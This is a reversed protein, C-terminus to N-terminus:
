RIACRSLATPNIVNLEASGSASVVPYRCSTGDPPVAGASRRGKWSRVRASSLVMMTASAASSKDESAGPVYVALATRSRAPEATARTLRSTSMTGPPIIVVVDAVGFVADVDDAGVDDAEVGGSTAM